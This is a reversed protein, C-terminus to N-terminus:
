TSLNLMSEINKEMFNAYNIDADSTNLDVNDEVKSALVRLKSARRSASAARWGHRTM